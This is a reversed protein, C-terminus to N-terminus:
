AARTESADIASALADASAAPLKESRASRFWPGLGGAELPLAALVTIPAVIGTNAPQVEAITEWATARSVKNLM